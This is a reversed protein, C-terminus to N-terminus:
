GLTALPAESSICCTNPSAPRCALAATPTGASGSPAATSTSATTSIAAPQARPRHCAFRDVGAPQAFPGIGMAAQVAALHRFIRQGTKGGRDGRPEADFTIHALGLVPPRHHEVIGRQFPQGPLFAFQSVVAHPFQRRQGQAAGALGNRGQAIHEIQNGPLHRQQKFELGLSVPRDARQAAGHPAIQFTIGPRHRHHAEIRAHGGPESRALCAQRAPQHHALFARSGQAPRDLPPQEHPPRAGIKQGAVHAIERRSEGRPLKARPPGQEAPRHAAGGQQGSRAGGPSRGDEFRRSHRRPLALGFRILGAPCWRRPRPCLQRPRITQRHRRLRLQAGFDQGADARKCGGCPVPQCARGVGEGAM